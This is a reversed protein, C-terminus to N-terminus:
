QHVPINVLAGLQYISQRSEFLLDTAIKIKVVSIDPIRYYLNNPQLGSQSLDISNSINRTKQLSEIEVVLDIGRDSDSPLLGSQPSFTAIIEKQTTKDAEPTVIFIKSFESYTTKGTFLEITQREMNALEEMAFQFADTEPKLERGGSLMKLKRQRIKIILSAAEKAKQELTKAEVQRRIVPIRVYSSDTIMTKYLTDTKEILNTKIPIENFFTLQDKQTSLYSNNKYGFFKGPDLIFGQQTLSLYSNANINGKLINISYYQDPDPEVYSELNIDKIRYSVSSESIYEDIGLYKESYIRYPGPISTVREFDVKVKFVTQPLVYIVREQFEDPENGVRTVQLDLSTSCSQIIILIFIVSTLKKM